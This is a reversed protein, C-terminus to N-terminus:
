LASTSDPSISSTNLKLWGVLGTEGDIVKTWEGERELFILQDTNKIAGVIKSKSEPELHLSKDKAALGTLSVTLGFFLILLKRLM